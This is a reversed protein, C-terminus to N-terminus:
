FLTSEEVSVKITNRMVMGTRVVGSESDKMSVFVTGYSGSILTNTENRLLYVQKVKLQRVCKLALTEEASCNFHTGATFKCDSLKEANEPCGSIRM